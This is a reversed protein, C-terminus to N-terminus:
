QDWGCPTVGAALDSGIRRFEEVGLRDVCALVEAQWTGFVATVDIDGTTEAALDAGQQEALGRITVMTQDQTWACENLASHHAALVRVIGLLTQSREGEDDLGLSFLRATAACNLVEDPTLDSQANGSVPLSILAAAITVRGFM